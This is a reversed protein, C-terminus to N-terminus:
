IKQTELCNYYKKQTPHNWKKNILENIEKVLEEPKIGHAAAGQELTEMQAMPCGICHMGKKLLLEISEPAKEIIEQFTMDKKIEKNEKTM